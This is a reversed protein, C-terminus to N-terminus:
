SWQERREAKHAIRRTEGEIWFEARPALGFALAVDGLAKHYEPGRQDGAAALATLIREVDQQFWLDLGM